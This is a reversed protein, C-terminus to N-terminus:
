VALMCFSESLSICVHRWAILTTGTVASHPTLAQDTLHGVSVTATMSAQETLPVASAPQGSERPVVKGHTRLMGLLASIETDRQQVQM